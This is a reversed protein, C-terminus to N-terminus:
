ALAQIMRPVGLIKIARPLDYALASLGMDTGVSCFGKTLFPFPHEVIGIRRKLKEAHPRNRREMADLFGEDV